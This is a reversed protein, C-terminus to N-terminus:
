CRQRHELILKPPIRTCELSVDIEFLISCPASTFRPRIPSQTCGGWYSAGIVRRHTFTVRLCHNVTADTM